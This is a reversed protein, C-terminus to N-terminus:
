GIASTSDDRFVGIISDSNIHNDNMVKKLKPTICIYSIETIM